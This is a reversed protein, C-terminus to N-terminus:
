EKSAKHVVPAQIDPKLAKAVAAGVAAAMMAHDEAVKAAGTTYKPPLVSLPASDPMLTADGMGVFYAGRASDCEVVAGIPAMASDFMRSKKMKIKM